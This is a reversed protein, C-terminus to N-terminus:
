METYETNSEKLLKEMKSSNEVKNYKIVIPKDIGYEQKLINSIENKENVLMKAAFENTTIIVFEQENNQMMAGSLTSFLKIKGM